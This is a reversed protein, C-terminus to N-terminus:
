VRKDVHGHGVAVNTEAASPIVDGQRSASSRASRDKAKQRAFVRWMRLQKLSPVPRLIIRRIARIPRIPEIPKIPRM